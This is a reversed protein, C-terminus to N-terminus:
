LRGAPLLDYRKYYSQCYVSQEGRTNIPYFGQESAAGRTSDGEAHPCNGEAM